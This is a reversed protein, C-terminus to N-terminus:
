SEESDWPVEGVRNSPVSGGNFKGAIGGVREGGSVAAGNECATVGRAVAGNGTGIEGVIGGVCNGSSTISSTINEYNKHVTCLSLLNNGYKGAIGGIYNGDSNITVASGCLSLTGSCEGTIGGVCDANIRTEGFFNSNAVLGNATIDEAAFCNYMQGDCRGAILGVHDATCNIKDSVSLNMVTGGEGVSAFLGLHSPYRSIIGFLFYVSSIDRIYRGNIKYGGGDLTGRFPVSTSGIPKWSATSEGYKESLDIDNTIEFYEGEGKGSNVYDRFRELTALNTILYPDDKTGSGLMDTEPNECLIPRGLSSDVWASGGNNLAEALNKFEDEKILGTDDKPESVSHAGFSEDDLGYCNEIVASPQKYYAILGFVGTGVNKNYYYSNSIKSGDELLRVLGASGYPVEPKGISYCNTIEGGNELIEAIGGASVNGNSRLSVDTYCNTIKGYCIGAIIGINSSYFDIEGKVSLKDVTGESGICGFLGQRDDYATTTEAFKTIGTIKHCNGDFYGNFPTKATGISTMPNESPEDYNKGNYVFDYDKFNHKTFLISMDIDADLRVYKGACDNGNNVYDRFYALSQANKIVYPDEETGSGYFSEPNDVLVPRGLHPSIAWASGNNQNLSDVIWQRSFEEKSLATAGGDKYYGDLYYCNIMNDKSKYPSNGIPLARKFTAYTIFDGIHYCNEVSSNQDYCAVIGAPM